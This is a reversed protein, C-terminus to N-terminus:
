GLARLAAALGAGRLAGPGLRAGPVGAGADAPAGILEIEHKLATPM